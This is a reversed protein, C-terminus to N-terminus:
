LVVIAVARQVVLSDLYGLREEPSPLPRPPTLLNQTKKREIFCHIIFCSNFETKTINPFILTESLTILRLRRSGTLVSVEVM